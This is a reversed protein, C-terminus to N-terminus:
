HTDRSMLMLKEREEWGTKRWFARGPVNDTFVFLNCKEIGAAHLAALSNEVLLHGTGSRRRDARVALHHLYGRRGDHGALVAGILTGEERAVFSMGPNRALYAAIRDAEDATSLGVGETVKWLAVAEPYDQMTFVTVTVSV